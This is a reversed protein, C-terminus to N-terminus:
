KLVGQEKAYVARYENRMRVKDLKGTGLRPLHDASVWIRVPVQFSAIEKFLSERLTEVDRELGPKFMIVAAPIEGYRADPLGFVAAELVEAHKYLAAEVEITTINEGGRIIIDKKRDVIFVYDDADQYGLDGSRFYGDATFAAKTAEPNNWYGSINAISRICVEGVTGRPAPQGSEDLIALDVLPLTPAGTSNPKDLYNTSINTCGVANTETLGYGIVQQAIPMEAKMFNVHDVPRPAGGSLIVRCSSLDFNRRDAHHAIENIMLPVGTFNTIREAAILRLAEGADWKHMIVMKRGLVMSQLFITTEATVHFFPLNLLTAPLDNFPAGGEKLLTVLTMTMVSFNYAAQVKARQDSLAGKSRGTSGSTFLITASDTPQLMPLPTQANGKGRTLAALTAPLALSDDYTVLQAQHSLSAERVRQGRPIDAFLLSVDADQLAAAMEDGQWFGNLMTAIGGAMIVAMYLVILACSNRGVLGIRDGPKIDYSEVLVGALARAHAYTEAFTYRANGEVLMVQEAYLACTAQFFAPLHPPAATIMATERGNIQTNGRAFPAGASTLSKIIETIKHDLTSAM